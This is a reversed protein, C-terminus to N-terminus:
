RSDLRHRWYDRLRAGNGATDEPAYFSSAYFGFGFIADLDAHTGYIDNLLRFVNFRTVRRTDNLAQLLVQSSRSSRADDEIRYGRERLGARAAPRWDGDPHERAYGRWWQRARTLADIVADRSSRPPMFDRNSAYSLALLVSGIACSGTSDVPPELVDLDRLDLVGIVYASVDQMAECYDTNPPVRAHEADYLRRLRWAYVHGVGTALASDAM